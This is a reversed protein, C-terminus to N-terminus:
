STRIQVKAFHDQPRIFLGMIFVLGIMHVISRILLSSGLFSNKNTSFELGFFTKGISNEFLMEQMAIFFWQSFVFFGLFGKWNQAILNGDIELHVVMTALLSIIIWFGFHVVTDLLYAFFRTRIPADPVAPAIPTKPQFTAPRQLVPKQSNAAQQQLQRTTKPMSPISFSPIGASTAATGRNLEAQISSSASRQKPDQKPDTKSLPAYPLGESFPHFGVGEHLPKFKIKENQM